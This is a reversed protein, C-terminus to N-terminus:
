GKAVLAVVPALAVAVMWDNGAGAVVVAVVMLGLEVRHGAGSAVLGAVVVAAVVVAIVEAEWAVEVGAVGLWCGAVVEVVM